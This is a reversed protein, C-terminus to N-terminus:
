GSTTQSKLMNMQSQTMNKLITIRNPQDSLVKSNILELVREFAQLANVKDGREKYILGLGYYADVSQSDLLKAQNFYAESSASDGKAKDTWARDIFEAATQPASEQVEQESTPPTSM